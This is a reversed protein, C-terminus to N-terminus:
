PARGGALDVFRGALVQQLEDGVLEQRVEITTALGEIAELNSGVIRAARERAEDLVRAVARSHVSRVAEAARLGLDDFSVPPVSDDLGADLRSTAIQTAHAVDHASGLSPGGELLLREAAIGGMAVVILDLQEDEAVWQSPVHEAGCRTSGDASRIAVSYVWDSGRLVTAVAAHGAEHIALRHRLAPDDVDDEPVVEGARRIAAVLDADTLARRSAALALGYADDTMARLDAPTRGRTLRAARRTDLSGETPRPGIFHELLAQREDEDPHDFRIHFGLRGARVLAADLVYPPRNSSAVVIPGLSPILGDLAALAATLLLRTDPSHSDDTRSMAWQDIEDLYLISREYTEGLWHIAGRLRSPSLEDSSVEFFPVTAGLESAVLRAVLTKGLGPEGWLLIGRPMELGLESVLNPHRLRGLLSDVETVVHGIGIISSREITPLYVRHRELWESTFRQRPM